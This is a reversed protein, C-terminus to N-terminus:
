SKQFIQYRILLIDKMEIGLDVTVDNPTLQFSALDLDYKMEKKSM